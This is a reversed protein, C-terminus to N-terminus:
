LSLADAAIVMEYSYAAQLCSSKKFLGEEKWTWFKLSKVMKQLHVATQTPDPPFGHLCIKRIFLSM